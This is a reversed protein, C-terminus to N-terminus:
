LSILWIELDIRIFCSCFTRLLSCNTQKLNKIWEASSELQYQFEKDNMLQLNQNPSALNFM